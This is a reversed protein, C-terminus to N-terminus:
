RATRVARQLEFLTGASALSHRRTCSLGAREWLADYQTATRERGGATFALMLLDTAQVFSGYRGPQLATEVVCIRGAPALADACNRLIRTCDEDSWDHIIATLVHLDYGAPVAVFFDCAEFTARDAVGAEAFTARAGAAADPLDCVAGRLAPRTALVNSLFTGTGGGVDLVSRAGALPLADACMIAQLRAGAAQAEHFARAAAPHAGLYSFFGTGHAIEIPDAGDRVAGLLQAYASMTWPAGLFRVWGSWGGEDTLLKTVRNASYRGRADRRLCGRSALYGLLRELSDARVGLGPAIEDARRPTALQEAVGLEVFAFLAPADLAGTLRELLVQFPLGMGDHARGLLARVTTALAAVGPPPTAPVGAVERVRLPWRRGM